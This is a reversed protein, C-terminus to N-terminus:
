KKRSAGDTTSRKGAHFASTIATLYASSCCASFMHRYFRVFDWARNLREINRRTEEFKIVNHETRLANEADLKQKNERLTAQKSEEREEIRHISEARAQERGEYFTKRAAEKAAWEKEKQKKRRRLEKERAAMQQKVAAEREEARRLLNEHDLKDQQRKASLREALRAAQRDSEAKRAAKDESRKREREIEIRSATKEDDLKKRWAADARDQNQQRIKQGRREQKEAFQRAKDQAAQERAAILKKLNADRKEQDLERAQAVQRNEERDAQGYAGGRSCDFTLATM